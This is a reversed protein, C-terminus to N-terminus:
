DPCTSLDVAMINTLADDSTWSMLYTLDRALKPATKAYEHSIRYLRAEFDDLNIHLEYEWVWVTQEAYAIYLEVRKALGPEDILRYGDLVLEQPRDITRLAYEAVAVNIQIYLLDARGLNMEKVDMDQMIRKTMTRAM